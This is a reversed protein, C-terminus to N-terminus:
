AELCALCGESCCKSEKTCAGHVKSDVPPVVDGSFKKAVVKPIAYLAQGLFGEEAEAYRVFNRAMKTVGQEKSGTAHVFPPRGNFWRWAMERALADTVASEPPPEDLQVIGRALPKPEVEFVWGAGGRILVGANGPPPGLREIGPEYLAVDKLVVIGPTWENEQTDAM